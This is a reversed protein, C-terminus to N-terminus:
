KLNLLTNVFDRRKGHQEIVSKLKNIDKDPVWSKNNNNYHNLMKWYKEPYKLKLIFYEMEMDSVSRYKRYECLMKKGLEINWNYKEMVKRMFDYLDRIQVGCKAHEFNTIVVNDGAVIINHYNYAGHVIRGLEMNSIIFKELNKEKASELVEMGDNYFTDFSSLVMLEFDNKRQKGRIFTRTRKMERNHKEFETILQKSSEAINFCENLYINEYTIKNMVTHLKGLASAANLLMTMDKTDMDKSNYWKHVVHKKGDDDDNVLSGDRDRVISDVKVLDIESIRNLLNEEFELHKKTGTFEKLLFFGQNTDLLVAGKARGTKNVVFDYRGLVGNGKENVCVGGM